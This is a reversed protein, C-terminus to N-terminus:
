LSLYKECPSCPPGHRPRTRRSRSAARRTVACRDFARAAPLRGRRVRGTLWTAGQEPSCIINRTPDACPLHAPAALADTALVRATPRSRRGEARPHSPSRLRGARKTQLTTVVSPFRRQPELVALPAARRRRSHAAVGLHPSAARRGSDRAARTARLTAHVVMRRPERRERATPLADGRCHGNACGASLEVPLSLARSCGFLSAATRSSPNLNLRM